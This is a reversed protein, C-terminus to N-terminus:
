KKKKKSFLIKFPWMLIRFFHTIYHFFEYVLFLGFGVLAFNIGSQVTAVVPLGLHSAVWPFTFSAIVVLSGRLITKFIKYFVFIGIIFATYIIITDMTIEVAM